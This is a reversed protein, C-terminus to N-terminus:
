NGNNARRKREAQQQSYADNGLKNLKREKAAQSLRKRKCEPCFFAASGGEFVKGCDECLEKAM